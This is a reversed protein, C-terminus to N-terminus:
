SLESNIKKDIKRIIDLRRKYFLKPFDLEPDSARRKNEYFYNRLIKLNEFTRAYLYRNGIEIKYYYDKSNCNFKGNFGCKLCQITGINSPKIQYLGSQHDAFFSAKRRCSPCIVEIDPNLRSKQKKDIEMKNFIGM